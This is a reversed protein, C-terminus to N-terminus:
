LLTNAMRVICAAMSAPTGKSDGQHRSEGFVRAPLPVVLFQLGTILSLFATGAAGGGCISIRSFSAVSRAAVLRDNYSAMGQIWRRFVEHLIEKAAVVPRLLAPKNEILAFFAM